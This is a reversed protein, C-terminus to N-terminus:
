LDTCHLWLWRLVLGCEASEVGEWCMNNTPTNPRHALKLRFTLVFTNIQRNLDKCISLCFGFFQTDKEMECMSTM